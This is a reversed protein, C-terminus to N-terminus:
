GETLHYVMAMAKCWEVGNVHTIPHAGNELLVMVMCALTKKEQELISIMNAYYKRDADPDFVERFM